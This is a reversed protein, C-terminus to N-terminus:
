YVRIVAEDTNRILPVLQKYQEKIKINKGDTCVGVFTNKYWIRGNSCVAFQKDFAVAKYDKHVVMEFAKAFTPYVGALCDALEKSRLRKLFQLTDGGGRPYRIGDLVEFFINEETLGSKYKRLALRSAYVVSKDVNIFGLRRTPKSFEEFNFEVKRDRQSSLDFIDATRLDRSVGLVLCAKNKYTIISNAFMQNADNSTMRKDM